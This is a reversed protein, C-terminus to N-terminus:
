SRASLQARLSPWREPAASIPSLSPLRLSCRRIVWTSSGFISPVCWALSEWISRPM